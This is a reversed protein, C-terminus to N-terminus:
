DCCVHEFYNHREKIKQALLENLEHLKKAKAYVQEQKTYISEFSDVSFSPRSGKKLLEAKWENMLM